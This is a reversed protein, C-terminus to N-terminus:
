GALEALGDEFPVEPEFGLTERALTVEAFCHRVDGARFTGPLKPELEKGLV